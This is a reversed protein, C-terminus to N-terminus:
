YKSKLPKEREKYDPMLEVMIKHFNEQHNGELYHAYEHLIVAEITKDPMRMLRCNLRIFDEKPNCAGWRSKEDVILIKPRETPFRKKLKHKILNWINDALPDFRFLCETTTFAFIKDNCNLKEDRRLKAKAQAEKVWESREQM